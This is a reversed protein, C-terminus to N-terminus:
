KNCYKNLLCDECKPNQSMCQYRGFLLFVHHALAWEEKPIYKTLNEECVLVSDSTSCYGLRTAVRHVHTDVPFAPINFGIALVVNATKRGVGPLKVLSDFENPVVGNFDTIIMKALDIIHRAKTNALGVPKVIENVEEYNATALSSFDPYKSFLEKTVINVRKDTTQASLVVAVILEYNNKFDLEPKPNPVSEKLLAYIIHSKVKTM